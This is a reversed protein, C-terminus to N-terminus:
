QCLRKKSLFDKNIPMSLHGSSTYHQPTLQNHLVKVETGAKAMLWLPFGHFVKKLIPLLTDCTRITQERKYSYLKVLIDSHERTYIHTDYKAHM